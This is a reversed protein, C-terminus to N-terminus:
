ACSLAPTPVAPDLVIRESFIARGHVDFADVRAPLVGAHLEGTASIRQFIGASDVPLVVHACNSMTLDLKAVTTSAFGWLWARDWVSLDPGDQGSGYYLL